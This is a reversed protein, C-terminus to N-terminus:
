SIFKLRRTDGGAHAISVIIADKPILRSIREPWEIIVINTPDRIIDQFGLGALEKANRIRYCDIHWLNKYCTHTLPYRKMLLFTPSHITPEVGLGRGIGKAFVTKGAGLDGLLLIVLPERYARIEKGLLLALNMTESASYTKIIFRPRM